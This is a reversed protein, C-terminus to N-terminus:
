SIRQWVKVAQEFAQLEQPTGLIVSDAPYVLLRKGQDIMWEIAQSVVYEGNEKVGRQVVREAAQMFDGARKFYYVGAVAHDSIVKKDAIRTIVGWIEEVYSLNPTQRSFTVIAGDAQDGKKILDEPSFDVLQDCLALLLPSDSDIRDKLYLITDLTGDTPGVMERTIVLIQGTGKPTVNKVVREIMSVGLVPILPKATTYGADKFRKGEGAAPIVITIVGPHLIAV